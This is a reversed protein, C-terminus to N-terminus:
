LFFSPLRSGLKRRPSDVTCRVVPPCSVQYTVLFVGFYWSAANYSVTGLIAVVFLGHAVYSRCFFFPCPTVTTFCPKGFASGRVCYPVVPSQAVDLWFARGNSNDRTM